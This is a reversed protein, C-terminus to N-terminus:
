ADGFPRLEGARRRRDQIAFPLYLLLVTFIGILEMFAIYCPWPPLLDLLSPTIPKVNLMLYDSGIALNLCFILVMYINTYVLVRQVSRWTPRFGEVVTMYIPATLLLGHSIFAEFFRYHPFGYQGLDPTALYQLAAGIGLFYAFEYIRYNKFLLMFGSLWIFVSCLNLPLLYLASWRGVGINWLHWSLESGWLVVTLGVRAALRASERAGRLLLLSLNLIVLAALAVVHPTGLIAFGPGAYDLAFYRGLAMVGHQLADGIM